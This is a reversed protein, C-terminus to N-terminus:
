NASVPKSPKAPKPKPAKTQSEATVPDFGVYVVYDDLQTMPTPLPFSLGNEIHSFLAGTTVDTINVPIQVFRTAIMRSGGPTEQVVAIRLPVVVEGATGAPGVVLRGEIGVRLVMNGDAVTCERAERSFGGQYKLTMASSKEGNSGLTLSSAGRRVDVPPCVVDGQAGAVAQPAKASSGSFFDGISGGSSAAPAGTGATNSSCGGAFLAFLLLPAVAARACRTM